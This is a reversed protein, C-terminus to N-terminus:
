TSLGRIFQRAQPPQSVTLKGTRIAELTERAELLKERLLEIEQAQSRSSNEINNGPALRPAAERVADQMM